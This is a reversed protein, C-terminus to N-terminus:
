KIQVVTPENESIIEIIQDMLYIHHELHIDTSGLTPLTDYWDIFGSKNSKFFLFNTLPGKESGVLYKQIANQTPISLDVRSAEPTVRIALVEHFSYSLKFQHNDNTDIIMEVNPYHTIQILNLPPDYSTSIPQWVEFIDNSM